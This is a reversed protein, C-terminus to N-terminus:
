EKEKRIFISEKGIFKPFDMSVYNKGKRKPVYGYPELIVRVMRGALRKPTNAKRVDFEDTSMKEVEAACALLPPEGIAAMAIMKAVNKPEALLDWIAEATKNNKYPSAGVSSEIFDQFTPPIFTAMRVGKPNPTKVLGPLLLV